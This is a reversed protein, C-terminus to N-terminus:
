EGKQAYEDTKAIYANVAKEVLEPNEAFLRNNIEEFKPYFDDSLVDVKGDIVDQLFQIDSSPEKVMQEKDEDPQTTESDQESEVDSSDELDEDDEILNGDKDYVFLNLVYNEGVSDIVALAEQISQIHESELKAQEFNGEKVSIPLNNQLVELTNTLDAKAFSVNDLVPNARLSNAYAVASKINEAQVSDFLSTTNDCDLSLGQNSASQPVDSKTLRAAWLGNENVSDMIMEFNDKVQVDYQYQGDELKRLVTRVGYEEGNVAVKTKVVSYTINRKQEDTDYSPIDKRVLEANQIVLKIAAALQNKIPNAGLSKFKKAGAKNFGVKANVAKCFVTDGNDALKVLHNFAAERLAKKGNETTTDFKGLEDGSIVIQDQEAKQRPQLLDLLEDLSLIEFGKGKMEQYYNIYESPDYTLVRKIWAPNNFGSFESIPVISNVSRKTMPLKEFRGLHEIYLYNNEEATYYPDKRDTIEKRGIILYAVNVNGKMIFAQGLEFEFQTNQPEDKIENGDKDYVFLNLVYGSSTDDLTLTNDVGDPTLGQQSRCYDGGCQASISRPIANNGNQMEVNDFHAEFGEQLQLDYHYEKEPTERIVLKVSFEEGDVVANTRLYHYVLKSRQEAENYSGTSEKYKKGTAILEKLKFALKSKIIGLKGKSESKYKRNGKGSFYINADLDVNYVSDGNDIFSKIHNFAAERLAKKGEESSTDFDGLENGSITIPSTNEEQKVPKHETTQEVAGAFLRELFYRQSDLEETYLMEAGSLSKVRENGEEGLLIVAKGDGGMDIRGITNNNLKIVGRVDYDESLSWEVEGGEMKVRSDINKASLFPSYDDDNLSEFLFEKLDDTANAFQYASNVAQLANERDEQEIEARLERTLKAEELKAIEALKENLMQRKTEIAQKLEAIRQVQETRKANRREFTAQNKEALKLIRIAVQRLDIDQGREPAVVITIDKKNLLFKYSILMDSGTIKRPTTDPNHFFISITQGGELEFLVAVNATGFKTFPESIQPSGDKIKLKPESALSNIVRKVAQMKASLRMNEVVIADMVPAPQVDDLVDALTLPEYLLGDLIDDNRVSALVADLTSTVPTNEANWLTPTLTM